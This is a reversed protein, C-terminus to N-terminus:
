RLTGHGSSAARKKELLESVKSHNGSEAYCELARGYNEKLEYYLGGRMYLEHYQDPSYEQTLEWRLFLRFIPWFHFTDLRDQILMPPIASFVAWFNGSGATAASWKPLIRVSSKM